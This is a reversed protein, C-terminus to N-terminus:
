KYREFLLQRRRGGEEGNDTNDSDGSHEGDSSDDKGGEGFADRAKLLRELKRTTMSPDCLIGRSIRCIVEGHRLVFLLPLGGDPIDLMQLLFYAKTEALQFIGTELHKPALERLYSSVAGPRGTDHILVVSREHPKVETFFDRESAIDRLSGHGLKKWHQAMQAERRMQAKRKERLLTLEDVDAADAANSAYASNLSNTAATGGTMKVRSNQLLLDDADLNAKERLAEEEKVARQRAALRSFDSEKSFSGDRGTLCMFQEGGRGAAEALQEKQSADFKHAKSVLDEFKGSRLHDAIEEQKDTIELAEDTPGCTGDRLLSTLDAM